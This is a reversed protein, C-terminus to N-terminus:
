KGILVCRCNAIESLPADSQGPYKLGNTFKQSIPIWGQKDCQEHSDRVRDDRQSVWRKSTFGAASMVSDIATGMTITTETQSVLEGEVDKAEHMAEDLRRKVALPSEKGALGRLISDQAKQLVIEPSNSLASSRMKSFEDAREKLDGWNLKGMAQEAYFYARSGAQRMAAAFSDDFDDGLILFLAAITNEDLTKHKALALSATRSFDDFVGGIAHHYISLVHERVYNAHDIQDQFSSASSAQVLRLSEVDRVVEEVSIAKFRWGTEGQLQKASMM